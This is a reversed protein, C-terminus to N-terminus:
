NGLVKKGAELARKIDDANQRIKGKQVELYRIADAEPTNSNPPTYESMWVKMDEDAKYIDYYVRKLEQYRPSLTDLGVMAAKVSRGVSNLPGIDKMAVDHIDMTEKTLLAVKDEKCSGFLLSIVVAWKLAVFIVLRM